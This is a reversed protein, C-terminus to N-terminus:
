TVSSGFLRVELLLEVGKTEVMTVGCVYALGVTDVDVERDSMESVGTPDNVSPTPLPSVVLMSGLVVIIVVGIGVVVMVEVDDLRLERVRDDDDLRGDALEEGTTVVDSGGVEEVVADLPTILLVVLLLVKEEM